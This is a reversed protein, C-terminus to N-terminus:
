AAAQQGSKKAAAVEASAAPATDANGGPIVVLRERVSSFNRISELHLYILEMEDTRVLDSLAEGSLAKLRKRDVAMFGTLALKEGGPLTVSAQMSELLDLEKLKRCFAQTRQFQVQYNQLFKLVNDVYPTPQGEENFLREGRGAQNFGKFAEDICLTLTKGDSDSSFIFPYRRIFAPIYKGKWGGEADLYVNENGRMGLIVVPMISEGAGAFVIAYESAAPPFEVAMLPVSNVKRSFAYDGGAEVCWNAHRRASVPFATEYILMQTSM